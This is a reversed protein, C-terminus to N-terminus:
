LAELCCTAFDFPETRARALLELDLQRRDPNLYRGLVVGAVVDAGALRLASAASQLRASSTLMDDVLLFARGQVPVQVEFGHDDAHNHDIRAAGPRLAPVVEVDLGVASLAVELPHRGPRNRTSPVVSVSSWRRGAALEICHGHCQLFRALFSVVIGSMLRRNGEIPDDKYKRITTHLQQGAECLSVPVILGLPRTVQRRAEVCSRCVAWGPNPAGHCVTCVGPGAPPVRVLMHRVANSLGEVDVM